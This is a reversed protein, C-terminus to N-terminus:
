VNLSACFGPELGDVGICTQGETCNEDIFCSDVCWYGGGNEEDTAEMEKCVLGGTCYGGLSESCRRSCTAYVFNFVTCTHYPACEGCPGPVGPVGITDVIPQPTGTTEEAGTPLDTASTSATTTTEDASTTDSNEDCAVTAFTALSLIIARITTMTTNSEISRQTALRSQTRHYDLDETYRDNLRKCRKCTIRSPFATVQTDHTKARGCFLPVDDFLGPPRAPHGVPLTTHVVM